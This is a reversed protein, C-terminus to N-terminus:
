FFFFSCKLINVEIIARRCGLDALPSMFFSMLLEMVHRRKYLRYDEFNRIGSALLQCIWVRERRCDDSSSYFLSYFM